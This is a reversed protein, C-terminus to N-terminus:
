KSGKYYLRKRFKIIEYDGRKTIIEEIEEQIKEPNNKIYNECFESLEEAKESNDVATIKINIM